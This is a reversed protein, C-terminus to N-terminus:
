IPAMYVTVGGIGTGGTWATTGTTVLCLSDGNALDDTAGGVLTLTQNTNATGNANLTDSTLATGGSCATGSPAKFVQVTSTGGTADSVRGIIASVRSARNVTAIVAKNPNVTAVWGTSVERSNPGWTMNDRLITTGTQTAPIPVSLAVNYGTGDSDLSGSQYAGFKLVSLGGITGSAPTITNGAFSGTTYMTSYGSTFGTGSAATITDAGGSANTRVIQKGADAALIAYAGTGTQSNITNTGDLTAAGASGGVLFGSGVTLGTVSTVTNAGDTIDWASGGGGSPTAWTGDGRWFTTSSASTGSNLHSVGLNGTVDASLSVQGFTPAGGANGHLLTTTTGLSGLTAVATTGGGLVIQNSTLTGAATVNGSGAPAAWTGDGRWFTSSSASTGSNLNNVSLNGTVGTSLPLGTLNTAVGSVPTGLAPNIKLFTSALMADSIGGANVILTGASIGFTTTNFGLSNNNAGANALYMKASTLVTGATLAPVDSDARATIPLLAALAAILLFRRM